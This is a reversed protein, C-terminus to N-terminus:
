NMFGKILAMDALRAKHSEAVPDALVCTVGADRTAAIRDSVQAVSGILAIARVFEEPVSEAAEAKRGSLFLRQIEAAEVVYGCRGFLTNYYNKGATGMGGVYLAVNERVARLAATIKAPDDSVLLPSQVSIGLGGLDVGRRRRGESLAEGFM